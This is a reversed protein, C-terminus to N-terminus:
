DFEVRSQDNELVKRAQELVGQDGTTSGNDLRKVTDANIHVEAQRRQGQRDTWPRDKRLRGEVEFRDGEHLTDASDAVENWAKIRVHTTGLTGQSTTIENRGVFSLLRAGSDFTRNDPEYMVTGSYRVFNIDETSM